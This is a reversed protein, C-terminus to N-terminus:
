LLTMEHAIRGERFRAPSLPAADFTKSAGETIMEAIMRGSAPSHMVGHGSFGNVLWFGKVESEGIIAHHDPTMEYLGVRNQRENIRALSFLPVRHRARELVRPIFAPNFDFKFGFTEHPDPYALWVDRRTAHPAPRFHFGSALEITMPYHEPMDEPATVSLIQRRLPEVPIEVGALKGVEAAWAGAANIVCRTEIRGRNTQVACVGQSDTEIKTAECELELRAGHDLARATFGRMIKLPEIFGDTPCFSGGVVDDVRMQPLMRAIEKPKIIEVNICGAALQRERYNELEALQAADAALFLYGRPEYGADYGTAEKFHALFSISYLSMKINIESAFQARAGGTAQGTSGLGQRAGRELILVDRCGAHTLHFAASAGVVGGGIIIVDAHM